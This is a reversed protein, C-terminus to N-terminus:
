PDSGYDEVLQSVSGQLVPSQGNPFTDRTASGHVHRSEFECCCPGRGHAEVTPSCTSARPTETFDDSVGLLRTGARAVRLPSSGGVVQETSLLARWNRWLAKRAESLIRVQSGWRRLTTSKGSLWPLLSDVHTSQNGFIM